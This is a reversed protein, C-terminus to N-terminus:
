VENSISLYKELRLMFRKEPPAVLNIFPFSHPESTAHQLLRALNDRGDSGDVSALAGYENLFMEADQYSHFAFVIIANAQCRSITSLKSLKQVSQIVNV